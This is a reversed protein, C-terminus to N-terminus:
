NIKDEIKFHLKGQDESYLNLFDDNTPIDSDIETDLIVATEYAWCRSVNEITYGGGGLFIIPTNYGLMHKVCQAHGKISMNFNGLKDRALSDAGCQMVITDPRFSGMLLDMVRKFLLFYTLDDIGRKLPINVSYYKGLGEGIEDIAGTGPFFDEEYEHFSVTMVRNTNFFAEEM